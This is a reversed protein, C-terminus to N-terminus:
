TLSEPDSALEPSRRWFYFRRALLAMRILLGLGALLAVIGVLGLILWLALALLLIQEPWSKRMFAASHPFFKVALSFVVMLLWGPWAWITLTAPSARNTTLEWAPLSGLPLTVLLEGAPLPDSEFPHIQFYLPAELDLPLREKATARATARLNELGAKELLSKNVEDLEQWWPNSEGIKEALLRALIEARLLTYYFQLQLSALPNPNKDSFNQLLSQTGLLLAQARARLAPTLGVTEKNPSPTIEMGRPLRLTWTAQVADGIGLLPLATPIRRSESEDQKGPQNWEARVRVLGERNLSPLIHRHEHFALPQVAEQDIWFRPNESGAPLGVPIGSQDKKIIWWQVRHMAPPGLVVEREVHVLRLPEASPIREDNTELIVVPQPGTARYVRTSYDAGSFGLATLEKPLERFSVEQCSRTALVKPGALPLSYYNAAGAVGAFAWQPLVIEKKGESLPLVGELTLRWAPGGPLPYLTWIREANGLLKEDKKMGEPVQLRAPGTPWNRVELQMPNPMGPRGAPFLAELRLTIGKEGPEVILCSPTMAPQTVPTPLLRVLYNKEEGQFRMEGLAPVQALGTLKVVKYNIAKAPPLEVTTFTKESQEFRSVPARIERSEGSGVPFVQAEIELSFNRSSDKFWILLDRGNQTWSAVEEGRINRILVRGPHDLQWNLYPIPGAASEGRASIKVWQSQDQETPTILIEQRVTFSPRSPALDLVLEPLNGQVRRFSCAYALSEPEPKGAGKWFPAFAANPIGTVGLPLTNRLAQCGQVRYALFSGGPSVLGEPEPVPMKWPSALPSLPALQVLLLVEGQVRSPFHFGWRAGRATVARSWQVIRPPTEGPGGVTGCSVVTLGAPVHLNLVDTGAQPIQCSFFANLLSSDARIDWCYAEHIQPLARPAPLGKKWALVVPGGVRGLDARVLTKNGEKRIESSGLAGQLTIEEIGATFEGQFFSEVVQPPHFSVTEKGGEVRIPFRMELSLGRLGASLIPVLIQGQPGSRPFAKEGDVLIDGEVSAASVPLELVGAEKAVVQWQCKLHLFQDDIRGLCTAQTIAPRIEEKIPQALRQVEELMKQPIFVATELARDKALLLYVAFPENEEAQGSTFASISVLLLGAATLTKVPQAVAALRGAYQCLLSLSLALFPWLALHIFSGPLLLILTGLILWLPWNIRPWRSWRRLGPLLLTLLALFFGIALLHNKNAIWLPQGQKFEQIEWTAQSESYAAPSKGKPAVLPLNEPPYLWRWAPLLQDAEERFPRLSGGASTLILKKGWSALALGLADLNEGVSAAPDPLPTKRSYKKAELGELDLLFELDALQCAEHLARTLAGLNRNEGAVAKIQLARFPDTELKMEKWASIWDKPSGLGLALIRDLFAPSGKALSAGTRELPKSGLSLPEWDTPLSYVVRQTKVPFPLKPFDGAINRLFFGYSKRSQYFVDVQAEGIVWNVPVPIAVQNGDLISLLPLPKGHVLVKLLSSHSPLGLPFEGAMSPPVTFSFHNFVEGNERMSCRLVASAVAGELTLEQGRPFQLSLSNWPNDQQYVYTGAPYGFVQKWGQAKIEPNWGPPLELRAEGESPIAFPVRPLPAVFVPGNLKLSPLSELKISQNRSLPQSLFVRYRQVPGPNLAAWSLDWPHRVALWAVANAAAQSGLGEVKRIGRKGPTEKWTIKEGLALGSIDIDFTDVLGEQPHVSVLFSAELANGRLALRTQTQAKFRPSAATVKVKGEPPRDLFSFLRNPTSKFGPNEFPPLIERAKTAVEVQFTARDYAISLFGENARQGRPGLAPFNWEKTKAPGFGKASLVVQLVPLGKKTKEGPDPPGLAAELEIRLEQKVGDKRVLWDKIGPGNELSVEEVEFDAPFEVLLFPCKGQLIQYTFQSSLTIGTPTLDILTLQRTLFEARLLKMLFKPPITKGSADGLGGGVLGAIKVGDRNQGADLVLFSGPEVALLELAPSIELRIEERSPPAGTPRMRPAQWFEALQLPGMARAKLVGGAQGLGARQVALVATKGVPSRIEWSKLGEMEVQLFRLGPPLDFLLEKQGLSTEGVEIQFESAVGEPELRHLSFNRLATLGGAFAHRDPDQLLIELRTEGSARIRWLKEGAEGPLPGERMGGGLSALNWGAPLSIEFVGIGSTPLKLDAHYGDPRPTLRASFEFDLKEEKGAPTLLSWQGKSFEGLRAEMGKFTLKKIALGLAPIPLLSEKSNALLTWQGKGVLAGDTFRAQYHAQTLAALPTKGPGKAKAMLADFEKKEMRVFATKAKGDLLKALQDENVSILQFPPIARSAPRVDQSCVLLSTASACM